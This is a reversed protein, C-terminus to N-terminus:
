PFLSPLCILPALLCPWKLHTYAHRCNSWRARKDSIQVNQLFPVNPCPTTVSGKLWIVCLMSRYVLAENNSNTVIFTKIALNIILVDTVLRNVVNPPPISYGGIWGLRFSIIIPIIYEFDTTRRKANDHSFTKLKKPLFIKTILLSRLM